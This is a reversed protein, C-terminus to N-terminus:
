PLTSSGDAIEPLVAGRATYGGADYVVFAREDVRTSAREATYGSTVQGMKVTEGRATRRQVFIDFVRGDARHPSADHWCTTVM